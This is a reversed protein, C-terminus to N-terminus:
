GGFRYVYSLTYSDTDGLGDFDYRTYDVRVSAHEFLAYEAGAGWAFSGDGSGANNVFSTDFESHVYGARGFLSIADSVPLRGVAYLGAMYDLEAESVVAACAQNPDCLFARDSNLGFDAQAEIGFHPTFDYGARLSAANLDFDELDLFTYGASLSFRGDQAVGAGTIGAVMLTGIVINRIM